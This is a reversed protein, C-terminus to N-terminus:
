VSKSQFIISKKLCNLEKLFLQESEPLKERFFVAQRVVVYSFTEWLRVVKKEFFNSPIESSKKIFLQESDTM